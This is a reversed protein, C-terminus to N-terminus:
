GFLEKDYPGDQGIHTEKGPVTRPVPPTPPKMSIVTIHSTDERPEPFYRELDGAEIWTRLFKTKGYSDLKVSRGDILRALPELDDVEDRRFLVYGKHDLEKRKTELDAIQREIDQKAAIVEQREQNRETKAAQAMTRIRSLEKSYDPATNAQFYAAKRDELEAVDAKFQDIQRQYDRVAGADGALEAEVLGQRLAGIQEQRDSLQRNLDEIKRTIAQQRETVKIKLENVANKFKEVNKM